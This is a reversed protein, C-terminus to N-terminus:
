PLFINNDDTNDAYGIEYQLGVALSPAAVGSFINSELHNGNGQISICVATSDGSAPAFESEYVNCYDATVLGTAGTGLEFKLNYAECYQGMIIKAAASLILSANKGRGIIKTRTPLTVNAPVTVDDMLCIVGGDIPLQAIALALTTADGAGSGSLFVNPYANDNDAGGYYFTSRADVVDLGFITTGNLSGLVVYALRMMNSPLAVSGAGVTTANEIAAYCQARTGLTGYSVDITNDLQLSVTAVIFNNATPFQPTFIPSMQDGGSIVGTNFNLSTDENNFSGGSDLPFKSPVGKYLYLFAKPNSLQSPKIGVTNYATRFVRCRDDFKAQFQQIDSNKGIMDKAEFDLDTQAFSVAGVKVFLGALITDNEEIDPYSPTSSETGAIRIIQSQLNQKLYVQELPSTPKTILTENTLLPRAVILDRRPNSVATDVSVFQASDNIHLYGTAGLALGEEVALGAGSPAVGYGDLVAAGLVGEQISRSYDQMYTQFDAFDQATWRYRRYFNFQKIDGTM